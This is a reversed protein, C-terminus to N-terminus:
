QLAQKGVPPLLMDLSKEPQGLLTLAESESHQVMPVVADVNDWSKIFLASLEQSIQTPAIYVVLSQVGSNAFRDVKTAQMQMFRVYDREYDTISSFDVLQKQGLAYHPHALYTQTAGLTDDITVFGSYRVVVLGRDPIIRFRIPM